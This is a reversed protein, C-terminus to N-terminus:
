APLASLHAIYVFTPEWDAFGFPWAPHSAEAGAVQDFRHTRGMEFRCARVDSAHQHPRSPDKIDHDPVSPDFINQSTTTLAQVLFIAVGILKPRRKGRDVLRYSSTAYWWLLQLVLGTIVLTGAYIIVSIQQEPYQGLLVTPFAYATLLVRKADPFLALAQQLFEVGMMHPMRQDVLFLAVPENRLKVQKLIELAAAGSDARLVRFLGGYQQRLDREIARLVEPDDDATLIVPKTAAPISEKINHMLKCSSNSLPKKRSRIIGGNVILSQVM